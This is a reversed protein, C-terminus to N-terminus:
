GQNNPNKKVWNIGDRIQKAPSGVNLTGEAIDHTVVSKMGVVANDGISVGKLIAVDKGVWVHDGIQISEPTNLVNGDSIISHTDTSWIDVGESIMCNKGVTISIGKGGCVINGGGFTSGSQIHVTNSEGIIRIYTNYMHAGQDIILRHGKGRVFITASFVDAGQITLLNDKGKFRINTKKIRASEATLHNGKGGKIHSFLFVTKRKFWWVPHVLINALHELTM